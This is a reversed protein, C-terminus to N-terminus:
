SATPLSISFSRAMAVGTPDAYVANASANVIIHKEDSGLVGLVMLNNETHESFNCALHLYHRGEPLFVPWRHSVHFLAPEPTRIQV